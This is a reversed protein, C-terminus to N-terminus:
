ARAGLLVDAPEAGLTRAVACLEDATEPLPIAVRIAAVDATGGRLLARMGSTSKLSATLTRPPSPACDQKRQALAARRADEPVSDLGTLLPNGIGLFPRPAPALAQRSRRLAGLAAASPLVSLSQRKVLWAVSRYDTSAPPPSTVLVHLPLASLAGAPVVMLSRGAILPELRGFLAVYLEHAVESKFPLQKWANREGELGACRENEAVWRGASLRWEGDDLGCRLIAVHEAVWKGGVPLHVALTRDHTLGWAYGDDETFLFQVLAENDALLAQTEPLSAPQPYALAAYKPFRASLSSQVARARAEAAAIRSRAANAAPMDQAALRTLLQKELQQREALLGDFERVLGSLEADHTAIRAAMRSIAAAASTREAWQAATFSEAALRQHDGSSREALQLAGAVVDEFLRKQRAIYDGDRQHFMPDDAGTLAIQTSTSAAEQFRRLAEELRGQALAIHGLANATDAASTSPGWFQNQLKLSRALLDAADAPRSQRWEFLGFAKLVDANHPDLSLVLARQHLRRAQDAKQQAEAVEAL